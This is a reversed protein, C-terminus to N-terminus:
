VRGDVRRAFAVVHVVPLEAHQSHRVLLPLAGVGSLSLPLAHIPHLARIRDLAIPANHRIHPIPKGASHTM